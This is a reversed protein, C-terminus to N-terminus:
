IVVVYAVRRKENTGADNRVTLTVSYQGPKEYKHKPAQEFSNTGDGFEWFWEVVNSQPPTTDEFQVELPAKGSYQQEPVEFDVGQPVTKNVITIQQSTTATIPQWNTVTLNVTYTGINTYTHTTIGTPPTDLTGDGFNWNWQVPSGKSTDIFTVPTNVVAWGPPVTMFSPILGRVSIYDTKIATDDGFPNTVKLTVTYKGPYQYKHSPNTGTSTQGDGFDWYYSQIDPGQVHSTFVVSDQTNVTTPEASFDAKPSSKDTINVINRTTNATEYYTNSVTLSVNYVGYSPFKNLPNKQTSTNGDDFNWLFGTVNGTSQNYFQVGQALDTPVKGKPTFDAVLPQIVDIKKIVSNSAGTSQNTVTLNVNFQKQAIGAPLTFKHEPNQTANTSGDDFNWLWKNISDAPISEDTFKVVLPSVGKTKNAEFKAQINESVHIMKSVTSYDGTDREVSLNVKYSGTETYTRKTNQTTVTPPVLKGSKDYFEWLWVSPSDTSNDLFEIEYPYTGMIQNYKFDAVLDEDILIQRTIKNSTGKCTGSTYTVTLSVNYLGGEYYTMKANQGLKNIVSKEATEFEWLYTKTVGAAGESTSTFDVDIPINKLTVPDVRIIPHVPTSTFNAYLGRVEVNNLKYPSIGYTSNRATMNVAYSGPTSYEHTVTNATTTLNKQDGFDWYWSDIKSGTSTDKFTYIVPFTPCNVTSSTFNAVIPKYVTIKKTTINTVQGKITDPTLNLCVRHELDYTGPSTITYAFFNENKTYPSNIQNGNLKWIYYWDGASHTPYLSSYPWSSSSTFNVKYPAPVYIVGNKEVLNEKTTFNTVNCSLLPSPLPKFSTKTINDSFVKDHTLNKATLTVTYTKSLENPFTHNKQLPQNNLITEDGFNYNVYDPKGGDSDYTANFVYEWPSGFKSQSLNTASFNSWEIKIPNQAYVNKSITQLAGTHTSNSATVTLLYWGPTDYTYTFYNDPSGDEKKVIGGTGRSLNWDYRDPTYTGGLDVATYNDSVAGQSVDRNFSGDPSETFNESVLKIKIDGYALIGIDDAVTIGVIVLFLLIVPVWKLNRPMVKKM